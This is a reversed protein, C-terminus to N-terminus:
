WMVGAERLRRDVPTEQPPSARPEAKRKLKDYQKRFTGMSLINASWFQDQQCWEILSMAEQHPKKDLRLLKDAEKAWRQLNDPTKTTPDRHLICARLHEALQMAPHTSDYKDGSGDPLQSTTTNDKTNLTNTLTLTLTRDLGVGVRDSGSREGVAVQDNPSESDITKQCHSCNPDVIGRQVHWREHNGKTGAESADKRLQIFRGAYEYWDHLTRDEDMFGVEILAAEWVEPDDEWMAADAIDAADYKSLDGDEAFDLAWWWLYHLHGVVAPLSINLRRKLRKTKPHRGLDQHSEIWALKSVVQM